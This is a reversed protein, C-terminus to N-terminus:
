IQPGEGYFTLDWGPSAGQPATQCSEEELYSNEMEPMGSGANQEMWVPKKEKTM